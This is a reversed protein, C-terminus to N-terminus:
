SSTLFNWVSESVGPAAQECAASISAGQRKAIEIECPKTVIQEPVFM